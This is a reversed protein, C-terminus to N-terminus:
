EGQDQPQVLKSMIAKLAPTIIADVGQISGATLFYSMYMHISLFVAVRTVMCVGVALRLSYVNTM